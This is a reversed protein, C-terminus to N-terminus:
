LQLDVRAALHIALGDHITTERDPWAAGFDEGDVGTALRSRNWAAM